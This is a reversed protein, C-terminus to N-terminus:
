ITWDTQSVMTAHGSIATTGDEESVTVYVKGKRRPHDQLGVFAARNLLPVYFAAITPFSSGTVPDEPIGSNPSFFRSKVDVAGDTAEARATVIVGRAGYTENVDQIKQMRLHQDLENFVDHSVVVLYDSNLRGKYIAELDRELLSLSEMLRTREEGALEDLEDRPFVMRIRDGELDCRLEQGEGTRFIVGVDRAVKGTEWLVKAAALTAHGCLAIEVTPTFYRIAHCAGSLKWTFATESLNIEAAVQQMVRRAEATEPKLLPALISNKALLQDASGGCVMVGAGNGSFPHSTFADVVYSRM